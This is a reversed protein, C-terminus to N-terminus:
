NSFTTPLLLLAPFSCCPFECAFWASRPVLMLQFDGRASPLWVCSWTPARAGLPTGFTGCSHALSLFLARVPSPTPSHSRVRALTNLSHVRCSVSCSSSSSSFSRATLQALSPSPQDDVLCALLSTAANPTWTWTWFTKWPCNYVYWAYAWNVDGENDNMAQSTAAVNLPKIGERLQWRTDKPCVCM